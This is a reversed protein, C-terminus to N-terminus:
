KQEKPKKQDQLHKAAERATKSAYEPRTVIEVAIKRGEAERYRIKAHVGPIIEGTKKTAEDMEIQMESESVLRAIQLTLVNEKVSRLKGSVTKTRGAPKPSAANQASVAYGVFTLLFLLVGAFLRIRNQPM